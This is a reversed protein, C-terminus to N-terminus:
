EKTILLEMEIAKERATRKKNKGGKRKRGRGVNEDDRKEAGGDTTGGRAVQERRVM